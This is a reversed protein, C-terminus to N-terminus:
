YNLVTEPYAILMCWITETDDCGAEILLEMALKNDDNRESVAGGAETQLLYQVNDKKGGRCAFHLPYNNSNDCTALYSRDLEVLYEVMEVSSFECALHLPYIGDSNAVKELGPYRETLLKIVGLSVDNLIADHLLFPTSTPDNVRAAHLSFDSMQKTLFSSAEEHNSEKAIDLALKGVRDTVHIAEPYTDFLLSIVNISIKKRSGNCAIHLPLEGEATTRSACSPENRLLFTVVKMQKEGASGYLSGHLPYVGTDSQKNIAEPYVKYLYQMASVNGERCALYLPLQGYQTGIKISEIHECIYTYAYTTLMLYTCFVHMHYMEFSDRKGPYADILLRCFDDSQCQAASHIPLYSASSERHLSEPYARILIRLIDLKTAQPINRSNCFSHIPYGARAALPSLCLNLDVIFKVMESM